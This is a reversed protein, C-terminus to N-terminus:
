SDGQLTATETRRLNRLWKATFPRPALCADGGNLTSESKCMIDFVQGLPTLPDNEVSTSNSYSWDHCIFFEWSVHLSLQQQHTNSGHSSTSFELEGDTVTAFNRTLYPCESATNRVLRASVPLGELDWSVFDLHHIFSMNRVQVESLGWTMHSLESEDETWVFSHVENEPM